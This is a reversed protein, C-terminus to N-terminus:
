YEPQRRVEGTAHERVHMMVDMAAKLVLFFPLAAAGLWMGFIITMHMPLIRSYPAFMVKGIDQQKTQDRYYLFSFLHNVAFALVALLVFGPRFAGAEAPGLDFLAVPGGALTFVTLFVAYVLHFLGYHVAFFGATALKTAVNAPVSKDNITFNRTSYDELTLIRAVNVLGIVVSQGWYVWLVSMLSWHQSLALLITLGNSALLAWTTPDSIGSKLWRDM